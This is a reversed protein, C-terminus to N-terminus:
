RGRDHCDKLWRSFFRLKKVRSEVSFSAIKKDSYIDVVNIGNDSGGAILGAMQLFAFMM